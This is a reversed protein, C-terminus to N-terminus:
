AWIEALSPREFGIKAQQEQLKVEVLYESDDPYETVRNGWALFDRAEFVLASIYPSPHRSTEILYKM